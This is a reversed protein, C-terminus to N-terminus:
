LTQDFLIACLHRKRISIKTLLTFLLELGGIDCGMLLKGVVVRRVIKAVCFYKSTWVHLDLFKPLILHNIRQIFFWISRSNRNPASSFFTHMRQTHTHADVSRWYIRNCLQRGILARLLSRCYHTSCLRRCVEKPKHSSSFRVAAAEIRAAVATSWWMAHVKHVIISSVISHSCTCPACTFLIVKM